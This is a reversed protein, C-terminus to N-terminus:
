PSSPGRGTKGPAPLLPGTAARPRGAPSAPAALAAQAV